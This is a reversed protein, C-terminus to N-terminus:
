GISRFCKVKPAELGENRHGADLVVRARAGKTGPVRPALAKPPPSGPGPRASTPAKGWIETGKRSVGWGLARERGARLGTSTENM